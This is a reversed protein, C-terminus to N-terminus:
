FFIFFITFFCIHTTRFTLKGNEGEGDLQGFATFILFYETQSQPLVSNKTPQEARIFSSLLVVLMSRGMAQTDM